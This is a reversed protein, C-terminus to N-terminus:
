RLGEVVFLDSLTQMYYYAYAQGDRTIAIQGIGSVGVPDRPEISRVLRREGHEIDVTFLRAPIESPDFIFLRGDPTWQVPADNVGTGPIRRAEGGAVRVVAVGGTSAAYAVLRGDPSCTLSRMWNSGMPRLEVEPGFPRPPEPGFGAVFLHLAGAGERAALVIRDGDPLFRAAALEAFPLPRVRPVDAGTPLAAIEGERLALAWRGDPSLDQPVGDGLRIAAAGNMDRLYVGVKGGERQPAELFLLRRGDDSLDVAASLEFWALSKEQSAGTERGFM